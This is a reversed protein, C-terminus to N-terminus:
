CRYRIGRTKKMGIVNTYFDLSKDLDTVVVGVGIVGSKFESQAMTNPINLIFITAIFPIILNKM